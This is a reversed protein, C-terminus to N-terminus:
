FCKILVDSGIEGSLTKYHLQKTRKSQPRAACRPRVCLSFKSLRSFGLVVRVKTMGSCSKASSIEKFVESIGVAAAAATFILWSRPSGKKNLIGIQNRQRLQKVRSPTGSIEVVLSIFLRPYLTGILEM